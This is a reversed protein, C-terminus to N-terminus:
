NQSRFGLHSVILGTILSTSQIAGHLPIWSLRPNQSWATSELNWTRSEPNKTLPVQIGSEKLQIGSELGLIETEVTCIQQIERQVLLFKVSKPIRIEKCSAWRLIWGLSVVQSYFQVFHLTKLPYASDM